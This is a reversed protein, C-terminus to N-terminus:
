SLSKFLPQILTNTKKPSLPPRCTLVGKSPNYSYEEPQSKKELLTNCYLSYLLQTNTNKETHACQWLHQDVTRVLYKNEDHVGGGGLVLALFETWEKPGTCLDLGM